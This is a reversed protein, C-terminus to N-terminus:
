RGGHAEELVELLDVLDAPLPAEYTVEEGSAPHRLTIRHAHLAQRDLVPVRQESEARAKVWRRWSAQATRGYSPDGLIPFGLHELHVRIQHTRGTRPQVALETAVGLRRRVTYFTSATQGGEEVVARLAPARPHSGLPLDIWDNDFPMEGWVVATYEKRVTKAKFQNVLERAADNTRAVLLVGSTERDLRHVIGPRDARGVRALEPFLHLLGNVLTGTKKGSGPHIVLGVPKEVVVLAEDEHIVRLGLDEPEPASSAPKGVEGAVTMGPAVRFAPRVAQGDVKLVGEEVLASLYSRSYEPALLRGLMRDLRGGAEAEPVVYTLRGDPDVHEILPETM